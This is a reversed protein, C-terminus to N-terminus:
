SVVEPGERERDGDPGHGDRENERTRPARWPEAEGNEAGETLEGEDDARVPREDDGRLSAFSVDTEGLRVHVKERTARVHVAAGAGGPVDGATTRALHALLPRRDGLTAGVEGTPTRVTVPVGADVLTLALSAVAEAMADAPTDGEVSKEEDDLAIAEAVLEVRDDGEATYETVVLEDRKASAKWHIDRLTDGHVYERLRDFEERDTNWGSGVLTLLRARGGPSLTPVRPYVLLSDTGGTEVTEEVLGLVDRVSVLAPGVTQEGRALYEIEYSAEGEGFVTEVRGDGALGASLRDVVAGLAAEGETELRVTARQGPTGAPPLRRAISPPDTFEVQLAAAVLAVLGPLVFAGLSRAGHSQSLVFGVFVAALLAM